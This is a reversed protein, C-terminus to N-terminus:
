GKFRTVFEKVGQLWGGVFYEEPVFTELSVWKYDKKYEGLKIAGDLYKAQYGIAFIRRHENVGVEFREHRFFVLPDGLKYKVVDGIEEKMKRVIVDELPTFFDEPRLRGGPLDWGDDYIDKIILLRNQNDVLFVKVAVFYLDKNYTEM